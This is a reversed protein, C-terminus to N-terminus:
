NKVECKRSISLEVVEKDVTIRLYIPMPGSVHKKPKKLYFLLSLNKGLM